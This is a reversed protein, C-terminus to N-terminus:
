CVYVFIDIMPIVTDTDMFRVDMWLFSSLSFVVARTLWRPSTCHPVIGDWMGNNKKSTPVGCVGLAPSLPIRVPL